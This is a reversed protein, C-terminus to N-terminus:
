TEHSETVRCQEFRFNDRGGHPMRKMDEGSFKASATRKLGLEEGGEVPGIDMSTKQRERFDSDSIPFSIVGVQLHLQTIHTVLM